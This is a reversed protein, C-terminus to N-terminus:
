VVKYNEETIVKSSTQMKSFQNNKRLKLFKKCIRANQTM